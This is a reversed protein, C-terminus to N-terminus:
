RRSPHIWAVYMWVFGEGPDRSKRLRSLATICGSIVGPFIAAVQEAPSVSFIMRLGYDTSSLKVRGVIMYAKHWWLVATTGVTQYDAPSGRVAARPRRSELGEGMSFRIWLSLLILGGGVRYGLM